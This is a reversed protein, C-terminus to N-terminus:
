KFRKCEVETFKFLPRCYERLDMPSVSYLSANERATEVKALPIINRAGPSSKDGRKNPSRKNPKGNKDKPCEPKAADGENNNTTAADGTDGAALAADNGTTTPTSSADTQEGEQPGPEEGDHKAQKIKTAEKEAELKRKLAKMKEAITETNVVPCKKSREKINNANLCKTLVNVSEPNDEPSHQEVDDQNELEEVQKELQEKDKEEKELARRYALCPIGSLPISHRQFM